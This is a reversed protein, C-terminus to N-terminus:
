SKQDQNMLSIEGQWLFCILHMDALYKTRTLVKFTNRSVHCNKKLLNYILSPHTSQYLSQWRRKWPFIKLSFVIDLTDIGSKEGGGWRTAIHRIKLFIYSLLVWFTLIHIAGWNVAIVSLFHLLMGFM